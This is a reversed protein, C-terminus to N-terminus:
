KSCGPSISSNSDEKDLHENNPDRKGTLSTQQQGSFYRNLLAFLPKGTPKRLTSSADLDCGELKKESQVSPQTKSGLKRLLELTTKGCEASESSNLGVNIICWLLYAKEQTIGLANLLKDRKDQTTNPSFITRLAKRFLPLENGDEAMSISQLEKSKHHREAALLNLWWRVLVSYFSGRAEVKLSKRLFRFDHNNTSDNKETLLQELARMNGNNKCGHEFKWDIRAGENANDCYRSTDVETNKHFMNSGNHSMQRDMHAMMQQIIPLLEAAQSSTVEFSRSTEQAIQQLQDVVLGLCAMLDNVSRSLLRDKLNEPKTNKGIHTIKLLYVLQKVQRNNLKFVKKQGCNNKITIHM